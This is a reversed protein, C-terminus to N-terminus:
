KSSTIEILRVVAALPVKWAASSGDLALARLLEVSVQEREATEQPQRTELAALDTPRVRRQGLEDIISPNAIRGANEIRRDVEPQRSFGAVHPM